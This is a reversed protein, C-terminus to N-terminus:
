HSHPLTPYQDSPPDDIDTPDPDDPDLDRVCLIYRGELETVELGVEDVLRELRDKEMTLVDANRLCLESAIIARLDHATLPM